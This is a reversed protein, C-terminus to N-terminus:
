LGGTRQTLTYERLMPGFAPQEHGAMPTHLL